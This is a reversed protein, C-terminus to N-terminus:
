HENDTAYTTLIRYKTIRETEIETLTRHQEPKSTVYGHYKNNIPTTALGIVRETISGVYGAYREPQNDTRGFFKGNVLLEILDGVRIKDSISCLANFRERQQENEIWQSEKTDIMSSDAM